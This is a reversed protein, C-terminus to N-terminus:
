LAGQHSAGYPHVAPGQLPGARDAEKDDVIAGFVALPYCDGTKCRDAFGRKCYPASDLRQDNEILTIRSITLLGTSNQTAELRGDAMKVIQRRLEGHAPLGAFTSATSFDRPMGCLLSVASFAGRSGAGRSSSRASFRPYDERLREM